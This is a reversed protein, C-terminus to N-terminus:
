TAVESVGQRLNKGPLYFSQLYGVIITVTPVQPFANAGYRESTPTPTPTTQREALATPKGSESFM